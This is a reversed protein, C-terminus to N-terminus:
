RQKDVTSRVMKKIKRNRVDNIKRVRHFRTMDLYTKRFINPYVITDGPMAFIFPEMYKPDTFFLKRDADIMDYMLYDFSKQKSKDKRIVNVFLAKEEPISEKCMVVGREICGTLTATGITTLLTTKLLNRKM